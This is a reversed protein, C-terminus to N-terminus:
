PELLIKRLENKIYIEFNNWDIDGVFIKENKISNYLEDDNDVKKVYDLMKEYNEFDYIYIVRKKNIYNFAEKPGAYIPISNALIPNILKETFYGPVIENELALVFKYYSYKIVALDNYTENENYVNREQTRKKSCSRGLADVKKYQSVFNYLEIRYKLDYSYMYACFKDKKNIIIDKYNMKREWLSQFLQPFYVNYPHIFNINTIIGIDCKTTINQKEGSICIFISKNNLKIGGEYFVIDVNDEQETYIEYNNFLSLFTKVLGNYWLKVNTSFFIKISENNINKFKLQQIKEYSM